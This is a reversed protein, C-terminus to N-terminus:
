RPLAARLIWSPSDPNPSAIALDSTSACPPRIQTSLLNPTPVVNVIARGPLGAQYNSIACRVEPQIARRSARTTNIRNSTAQWCDGDIGCVGPTRMVGVEGGALGVGVKVGVGLGVVVGEGEGVAVTVVLGVGVGDGSDGCGSEM